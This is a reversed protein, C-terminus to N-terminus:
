FEAGSLNQLKTIAAKDKEAKQASEADAPAERFSVGKKSALEKVKRDASDHDTALQKGFQKVAASSGKTQALQGAQIELQNTTHIDSLIAQASNAEHSAAGSHQETKDAALVTSAFSSVVLVALALPTPM